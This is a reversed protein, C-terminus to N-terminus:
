QDTKKLGTRECTHAAEEEAQNIISHIQHIAQQIKEGRAGVEFDVYIRLMNFKQKVQAITVELGVDNSIKQIKELAKDIIYYWGDGCEFGFAFCTVTPDGHYNKCLMPYKKVLQDELISNM